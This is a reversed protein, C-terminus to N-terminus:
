DLSVGVIRELRAFAVQLALLSDLYERDIQQVNRQSDLVTLINSRGARYSEEALSELRQGTPVLTGRYLNVEAQRAELEYYASEVQGSVSRRVAALSGELVRETALSQAIEGQNRTFIPLGVSVQGRPGMRFDDPANFDAGLELSVDPVRQARLLSRRSQELKLEQALEQLGANSMWARQILDALTEQQPLDELLGALDWATGAPENLLANLESLAIREEQRAVQLDAGSRSLELDSQFVELEPIDGADFRSRAIDRLRAALDYARQRQATLSRALAARYYAERVASRLERELAAIQVDALTSEERAVAIRRQRKGGIEFVQDFAFSQHPSDRAISFAASPNPIQRAIQLGAAAVSKKLRAAALDLNQRDALDLAAQLTLRRSPSAAPEAQPALTTQAGSIGGSFGVLLFGFLLYRLL